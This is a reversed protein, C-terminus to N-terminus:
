LNDEEEWIMAQAQPLEAQDRTEFIPTHKDIEVQQSRSKPNNKNHKEILLDLPAIYAKNMKSFWAM